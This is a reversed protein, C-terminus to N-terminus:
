WSETTYREFCLSASWYDPPLGAKLKLHTLFERVDHITEWVSPLFTGRRRGDILVLGDIGPRLQDLLDDESDCAIAERPSLVSIHIHLGPLEATQVGPFRPDEFAAAYANHIVDEFLPRIAEISGICGRLDADPTRLTVFSGRVVRVAAGAEVTHAPLPVGSELGHAISRRALDTLWVKDDPRLGNISAVAADTSSIPVM